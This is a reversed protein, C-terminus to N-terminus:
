VQFRQFSKNLQNWTEKLSDENEKL